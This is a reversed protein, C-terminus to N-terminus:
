YLGKKLLNEGAKKLGEYVETLNFKNLNIIDGSKQIMERKNLTDLILLLKEENVPVHNKHYFAVTKEISRHYRHLCYLDVLDKLRRIKRNKYWQEILSFIKRYYIQDLADVRFVIGSEAKRRVPRWMGAFPDELFDIKIPNQKSTTYIAAKLHGSVDSQTVLECSLGGKKRLFSIISEVKEFSFKWGEYFFDLDESIRHNFYFRSLATGGSLVFPFSKLKKFASLIRDQESYIKQVRKSFTM